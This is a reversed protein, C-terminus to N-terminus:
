TADTTDDTTCPEADDIRTAVMVVVVGDPSGIGICLWAWERLDFPHSTNIAVGPLSHVSSHLVLANSM